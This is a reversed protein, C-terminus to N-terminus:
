GGSIEIEAARAASRLADEVALAVGRREVPLELQRALELGGPLAEPRRGIALEAALSCAAITFPCGLARFAAKEVCGDAGLAVQIRILQGSRRSGAWGTGVGRGRALEGAHRPARFHALVQESYVAPGSTRESDPM